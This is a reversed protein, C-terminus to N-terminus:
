YKPMISLRSKASVAIISIISVALIMVAIAGFEPIVTTGIIEIEEAGASFQITLTRDTDSVTEEFNAEEDDITVFFTSDQEGTKADILSRPLTIVLSGDETNSLAITLSHADVNPTISVLNGGTIKYSLNYDTGSVAVTTGKSSEATSGGFTFTTEATRTQSGYTVEITYTGDSKMLAGGATLETSFKKESNVDIQAVTVLNGNPAKMILSVPSGLIDRVEGTVLITDGDQYSTKDTAVVISDALGFAPALGISAIIIASLTLVSLHTNM